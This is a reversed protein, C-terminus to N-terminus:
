RITDSRVLVFMGDSAEGDSRGTVIRLHDDVYANKLNGKVGIPGNPTDPGNIAGSEVDDSLDSLKLGSELWGTVAISRTFEIRLFSGSDVFSGRLYNVFTGFPAVNKSVNYYFGDADVVQYVQSYDVFPGFGYDSWLSYWGGAVQHLKAAETREPTCALLRNVLPQLEARVQVRNDIKTQNATSIAIIKKKIKAVGRQSCRLDSSADTTSMGSNAFAFLGITAVLVKPLTGFLSKM